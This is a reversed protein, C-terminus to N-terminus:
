VRLEQGAGLLAAAERRKLIGGRGSRGKDVYVRVGYGSRLCYLPMDETQFRQNDNDKQQARSNRAYVGLVEGNWPLEIGKTTHVTPLIIGAPLTSQDFDPPLLGPQPLSGGELNSLDHDPALTPADLLTPM